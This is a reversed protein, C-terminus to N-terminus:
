YNVYTEYAVCMTCINIVFLAALIIVHNTFWVLFWTVIPLYILINKDFFLCLKRGFFIKDKNRVNYLTTCM